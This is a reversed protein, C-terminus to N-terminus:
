YPVWEGAENIEGQLTYRNLGSGFLTILMPPKIPAQKTGRLMGEIPDHGELSQPNPNYRSVFVDGTAKAVAVLTVPPIVKNRGTENIKALMEPTLVTKWAAQALAREDNPENVASEKQKAESYKGKSFTAHGVEPSFSGWHSVALFLQFRLQTKSTSDSQLFKSTVLRHEADGV